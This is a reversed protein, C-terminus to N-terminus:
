ATLVCAGGAAKIKEEAQRSFFRAKVIVPIQPLSGKGLLKFFGARTIDIVPAKESKATKYHDYTQESVLTWLKDINM